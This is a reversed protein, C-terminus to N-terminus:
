KRCLWATLSVRRSTKSLLIFKLSKSTFFSLSQFSTPSGRAYLALCVRFFHQPVLLSFFHNATCVLNLFSRRSQQNNRYFFCVFLFILRNVFMKEAQQISKVTCNFEVIIFIFYLSSEADFEQAFDDYLHPCIFFRFPGIFFSQGFYM